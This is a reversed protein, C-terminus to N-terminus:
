FRLELGPIRFGNIKEKVYNELEQQLIEDAKNSIFVQKFIGIGIIQSRGDWTVNTTSFLFYNDVTIHSEILSDVFPDTFDIGLGSIFGPEIGYKALLNDAIQHLKEKSAAQHQREDPNTLYAIVVLAVLILIVFYTAKRM